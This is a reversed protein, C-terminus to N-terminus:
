EDGLAKTAKSLEITADAHACLTKILFASKGALSEKLDRAFHEPGWKGEIPPVSTLVAAALDRMDQVKSTDGACAALLTADQREIWKAKGDGDLKAFNAQLDGLHSAISSAVHQDVGLESMTTAFVQHANIRHDTDQNALAPGFDLDKYTEPSTDLPIGTARHAAVTADDVIPSAFPLTREMKGRLQQELAQRETYSLKGGHKQEAIYVQSAVLREITDRAAQGVLDPAIRPSALTQDLATKSAAPPLAPRTTHGLDKTAEPFAARLQAERNALAEGTLGSDPSVLTPM